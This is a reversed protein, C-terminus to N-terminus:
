LLYQRYEQLSQVTLVVVDKYLSGDEDAGVCKGSNYQVGKQLYLEDAVLVVDRSIKNRDLFIKLAKM